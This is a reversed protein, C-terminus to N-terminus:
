ERFSRLTKGFSYYPMELGACRTMSSSCGSGGSGAAPVHADASAVVTRGRDLRPARVVITALTPIAADAHVVVTPLLTPAADDVVPVPTAVVVPPRRAPIGDALVFLIAGTAFLATALAFRQILGKSM